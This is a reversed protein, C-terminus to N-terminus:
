RSTWGKRGPHQPAEFVGSAASASASSGPRSGSESGASKPVWAPAPMAVAVGSVGAAGAAGGRVDAWSSAASSSAASARSATSVYAAPAGSNVPGSWEVPGPGAGPAGAAAGGGVAGMEVVKRDREERERLAAHLLVYGNWAVFALLAQEVFVGPNFFPNWFYAASCALFAAFLLLEYTLNVAHNYYKKVRDLPATPLAAAAAAASYSYYAPGGTGTGLTLNQVSSSSPAPISALYAATAAARAANAAEAAHVRASLAVLKTDTVLGVIAFYTTGVITLGRYIEFPTFGVLSYLATSLMAPPNKALRQFVAKYGSTGVYRPTFRGTVIQFRLFIIHVAVVSHIRKLLNFLVMWKSFDSTFNSDILSRTCTYAVLLDAVLSVSTGVVIAYQLGTMTTTRTRTKTSTPPPQPAPLAADSSLAAAAAAADARRRERAANDAAICSVMNLMSVSAQVSPVFVALGALYSLQLSTAPSLM